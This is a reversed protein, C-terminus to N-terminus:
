WMTLTIPFPFGSYALISKNWMIVTGSLVIWVGVYLYARLVRAAVSGAPESM